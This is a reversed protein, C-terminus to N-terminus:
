LTISLLQQNLWTVIDNMVEKRELDHHLEHFGESYTKFETHTANEAFERSADASIIQDKEGHILLIPYKNRHANQIAWIGQKLIPFIYNPSVENHILQDEKFQQILKQDKSLLNMDIGSNLTINTSLKSILKGLALKWKPPNYALKFFPSSLILGYIDPNRKLIFNIALNGGLSHGYIFSPM